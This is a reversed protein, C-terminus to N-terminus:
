PMQKTAAYTCALEMERLAGDAVARVSLEDAKQAMAVAVDMGQTAGNVCHNVVELFGVIDLPQLVADVESQAATVAGGDADGRFNSIRTCRSLTQPCM